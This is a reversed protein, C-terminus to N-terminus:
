RCGMGVCHCGVVGLLLFFADSIECNAGPISLKNENAAHRVKCNYKNTKVNLFFVLNTFFDISAQLCIGWCIGDFHVESELGLDSSKSLLLLLIITASHDVWGLTTGFPFSSRVNTSFVVGCVSFM